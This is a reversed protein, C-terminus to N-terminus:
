VRLEVCCLVFVCTCQWLRSACQDVVRSARSRRALAHVCTRPGTCCCRMRAAAAAVGAATATMLATGVTKASTAQKEMEKKQPSPSPLPSPVLRHLSALTPITPIPQTLPQTPHTPHTHQASSSDVKPVSQRVSVRAGGEVQNCAHRGTRELTAAHSRAPCIWEQRGMWAAGGGVGACGLGLSVRTPRWLVCRCCRCCRCCPDDADAAPNGCLGVLALPLLLPAVCGRKSPSANQFSVM